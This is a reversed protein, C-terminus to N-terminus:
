KAGATPAQNLPILQVNALVIREGPESKAIIARMQEFHDVQLRKLQAYDRESVVFLNYSYIGDAGNQLCRLGHEAWHAKLVRNRAQDRSTDVTMVRTLALGRKTRRIQKAALLEAISEREQDISIGLQEAIYGSRHHRLSRYADTELVRLVAHSWPVEYAVHLQAQLDSWAKRTSSLSEPAVFLSVFDLLRQTSVAILELLEPLRPEGTGELWRSVTARNVGLPTALARIRLSGRLSRLLRAVGKRTALEAPTPVDARECFAPLDTLSRPQVKAALRFFTSASPFRRGTEWTHAVNTSFGMRKNLATQSRKGRLERLLEAALRPFSVAAPTRAAV